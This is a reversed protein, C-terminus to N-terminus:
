GAKPTGRARGQKHLQQSDAHGSHVLRPPPPRVQSTFELLSGAHPADEALPSLNLLM